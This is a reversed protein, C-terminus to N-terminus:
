KRATRSIKKMKKKILLHNIGELLLHPEYIGPLNMQSYLKHNLWGGTFIVQSNEGTENSIMDVLGKIMATTGQFYASRMCDVSNKGILFGIEKFEKVEPLRAAATSLANFSIRVGPSIIGGVFEGASSIVDFTTATGFDIVILPQSYKEYAYWGGLARDAGVETPKDVLLPIPIESGQNCLWIPQDIEPELIRMLDKEVDPVVSIVGVQKIPLNGTLFRKLGENFPRLDSRLLETSLIAYKVLREGVFLGLSVSTNGLDLCFNM